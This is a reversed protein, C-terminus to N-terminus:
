ALSSHLFAQEFEPLEAVLAQDCVILVCLLPRGDEIRQLAITGELVPRAPMELDVDEVRDRTASGIWGRMVVAAAMQDQASTLSLSRGAM